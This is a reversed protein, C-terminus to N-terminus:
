EGYVEVEDFLCMGQRKFQWRVYRATADLPAEILGVRNQERQNAVVVPASWTDGDLSTQVRTESPFHVGFFGGGCAHVSALTVRQPQQLDVTVIPDIDPYGVAREPIMYPSSYRGDTLRVGDDPYKGQQRPPPPAITRYGKGSAVNVGNSIVEIEDLLLFAHSVLDLRVYRTAPGTVRGELWVRAQTKREEPEEPPMIKEPMLRWETGDDATWVTISKPFWCDAMGGGWAHVRVKEVPVARGLDLVIKPKSNIWGALKGDLFVNALAGDTLKKGDDPYNWAPKAPLPEYTYTKGFALNGSQTFEVEDLALPPEAAAGCLLVEVRRGRTVPVRVPIYAAWQEEPEGVETTSTKDGCTVQVRAPWQGGALKVAHLWLTDYNRDTPPQFTITGRGEPWQMLGKADQPGTAYQMDTLLGPAGIGNTFYPKDGEPGLPPLVRIQDIVLSAAAPGQLDIMLARGAQTRWRGTIWRAGAEGAEFPPVAVQDLFQETEGDQLSFKAHFDAEGGRGPRVRMRVQNVRREDPFNVVVRGG